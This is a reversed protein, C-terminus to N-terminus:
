FNSKYKSNSDSFDIFENFSIGENESLSKDIENTRKKKQSTPEFRTSWKDTELVCLQLPTLTASTFCIM